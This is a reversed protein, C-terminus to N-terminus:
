AEQFDIDPTAPRETWMMNPAIRGRLVMARGFHDGALRIIQFLLATPSRM